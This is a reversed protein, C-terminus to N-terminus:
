LMEEYLMRMGDARQMRYVNGEKILVFQFMQASGQMVFPILGDADALEPEAHMAEEMSVGPGSRGEYSYYGELTFYWMNETVPMFGDVYAASAILSRFAEEPTSGKELSREYVQEMINLNTELTYLKQQPIRYETVTFPRLESPETMGELLVEAMKIVIENVDCNQEDRYYIITTCSSPTDYWEKDELVQWTEGNYDAFWISKEAELVDGMWLQSRNEELLEKAAEAFTNEETVEETTEEITKEASEGVTEEITKGTAEGITEGIMEGTTEEVTEETKEFDPEKPNTLFCAAMGVCLLVCVAVVWFAPKKCSLVNKIRQKIGTERFALPSVLSAQKESCSLLAEAYAKKYALSQRSVVAEDCALEIDRCLLIYAVWIFPHFWYATLTLFGIWKMWHHLYRIHMQEHAIVYGMTEEEMHFPIYIRPCILGMVFPSTVRSSQRISTKKCRIGSKQGQVKADGEVAPVWICPVSDAVQRYLLLQSVVAYLLLLIMGAIWVRSATWLVKQTLTMGAELVTQSTFYETVAPNVTQDVVEVGSDIQFTEIETDTSDYVVTETNPILSLVSEFSVPCILRIGVMMWLILRVSKPAKKLFFRLLIIILILWGATISRNLFSLFIDQM